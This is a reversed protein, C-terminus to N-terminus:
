KEFIELVKVQIGLNGLGKRILTSEWSALEANKVKESHQSAQCISVSVSGEHMGRLTEWKM